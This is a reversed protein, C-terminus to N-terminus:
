YRYDLVILAEKQRAAEISILSGVAPNFGLAAFYNDSVLNLFVREADNWGPARASAVNVQFLVADSIVSHLGRVDLYNLYSANGPLSSGRSSQAVVALRAQNRVPLPRVLYTNVVSLISANAGIGLGLTLM